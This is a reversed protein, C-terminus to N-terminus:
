RVIQWYELGSGAVSVLSVLLPLGPVIGELRGVVVLVVEVHIGLPM